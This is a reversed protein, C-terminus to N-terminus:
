QRNYNGRDNKNFEAIIAKFIVFKMKENKTEFSYVHVLESVVNLHELTAFKRAYKM